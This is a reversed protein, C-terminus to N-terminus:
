RETRRVRRVHSESVVLFGSLILMAAASILSTFGVDSSYTGFCGCEIDLGRVLVSAQAFCFTVALAVAVINAGRTFIGCILSIGCVLQIFPLYSGVLVAFTGAVIRYNGVSEVFRYPNTLHLVSSLILGGGLLWRVFLVLLYSFHPRTKPMVKEGNM